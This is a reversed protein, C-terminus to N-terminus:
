YSDFNVVRDSSLKAGITEFNLFLKIMESTSKERIITM